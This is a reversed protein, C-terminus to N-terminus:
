FSGRCRGLGSRSGPPHFEYSKSGNKLPIDVSSCGGGGSCQGTEPLTSRQPFSVAQTPLPADASSGERNVLGRFGAEVQCM